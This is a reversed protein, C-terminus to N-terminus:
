NRTFIAMCKCITHNASFVHLMIEGYLSFQIVLPIEWQALINCKEMWGCFMQKYYCTHGAKPLCRGWDTPQGQSTFELM